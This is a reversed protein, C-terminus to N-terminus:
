AWTPVAGNALVMPAKITIAGGEARTIGYDTILMEGTLTVGGVTMTWTRQVSTSSVTKLVDHSRGTAPNFFVAQDVSLDALLLLRENASVDLGTVDQVARPTSIGFNGIDNRLDKVTGAADDVNYVALGLGSQKAM